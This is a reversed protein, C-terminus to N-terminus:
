RWLRLGDFYRGCRPLGRAKEAGRKFSVPRLAFDLWYLPKFLTISSFGPTQKMKAVVWPCGKPPGYSKFLVLEPPKAVDLWADATPTGGSLSPSFAVVPRRWKLDLRSEGIRPRYRGGRLQSKPPM